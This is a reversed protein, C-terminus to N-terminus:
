GNDAETLSHPIKIATFHTHYGPWDQDLPTGAYPPEEIPFKWWLQPGFDEHWEALPRACESERDPQPCVRLMARYVDSVDGADAALAHHASEIMEKTPEEPMLKWGSPVVVPAPQSPTALRRVDVAIDRCAVAYGLQWDDREPVDARAKHDACIALVEALLGSQAPTSALGELFEIADAMAEVRWVHRARKESDPESVDDNVETIKAHKLRTLVEGAETSGATPQPLSARHNWEAIATEESVM